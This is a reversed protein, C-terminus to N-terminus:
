KKNLKQIHAKSPKLQGFLLLAVQIPAGLIFLAWPNYTIFTIYISLIILWTLISLLFYTYKRKGWFLNFILLEITSLPLAYIFIQWNVMNFIIKGYVFIVITTLWILSLGLLTIIIKNRNNNRNNEFRWGINEKPKDSVLYDITVGYLDALEKLIAIPPTTDGNEWKSIAKDTYSLKQALETQTMKNRQRLEILNKAIIDKVDKM